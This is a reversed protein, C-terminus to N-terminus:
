NVRPLMWATKCPMLRWGCGFNRGPNLGVCYDPSALEIGLIGPRLSGSLALPVSVGTKVEHWAHDERFHVMAGDVAVVLAEPEPLDGIEREGAAVAAIQTQERQEAQQGLRETVRRVTERDVPINWASDVIAPVQDFPRDLAQEIVFRALAPTFHEPGLELYM